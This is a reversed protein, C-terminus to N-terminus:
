IKVYTVVTTYKSLEKQLHSWEVSLCGIGLEIPITPSGQGIVKCYLNVNGANVYTGDILDM